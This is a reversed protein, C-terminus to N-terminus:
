QSKRFVGYEADHGRVLSMNLKLRGTHDLWVDLPFPKAPVLKPVYVASEPM